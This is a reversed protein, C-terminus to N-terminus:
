KCSCSHSYNGIIHGLYETCLNVKCQACGTKPEKRIKNQSCMKCTKKKPINEIWHNNPQLVPRPDVSRKRKGHFQGLMQHALKMRFELQTMQRPRNKKTVIQHNVSERMLLYANVISIDVLFNFLYKWWKMCKRSINYTSRLQDAHDVGNMFMNYHKVSLPCPVEKITGDKQKRNVKDPEGFCNTSLLNINKKDRWVTVRMYNKQKVVFQGQEKLKIRDLGAPLGKRNARVTGCAYTGHEWLNIFLDPSTFFSDCYLHHGLGFVPTMLDLVVRKGLHQEPNNATKGTYINSGLSGNFGIMAEDISVEMHPKYEQLSKDRIIELIPRVHALKDHGPQLRPPNQTTDAVHLYRQLEEYRNRSFKEELSSAHFLKDKYWYMDMNPVPIIGMVIQGGLYAKIEDSTTPTWNENQRGNAYANTQTAIESYLREPFILHFFDIETKEKDMQTTPGPRPGTFDKIQVPRLEDGWRAIEALAVNDDDSNFGENEDSDVNESESSEFIEAM